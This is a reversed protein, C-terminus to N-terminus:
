TWGRVQNAQIVYERYPRDSIALPLNLKPKLNRIFKDMGLGHGIRELKQMKQKNYIVDYKENFTILSRDYARHHLACFAVGNRTEDTSYDESVPIIHSADILKLQLDCVACRHKYAALVRRKFSSDRKRKKISVVTEQRERRVQNLIENNVLDDSAIIDELLEIETVSEGFSHLQEYNKIYDVLFIPTFAVAVEQNGKDQVSIGNIKAKRLTEEKVQASSSYKPTKHKLYDFGAFVEIDNWYGLILTKYGPPQTINTVKFQIRYENTPRKRGGGHSLNYVIIKVKHSEENNFIKLEFPHTRNLYLVQWDSDYISQIIVELLQPKSLLKM